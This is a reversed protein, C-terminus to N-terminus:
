SVNDQIAWIDPSSVNHASNWAAESSKKQFVNSLLAQIISSSVSSVSMESSSDCACDRHIMDFQLSTDSNSCFAIALFIDLLSASNFCIFLINVTFIM